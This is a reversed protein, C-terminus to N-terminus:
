RLHVHMDILGPAVVLGTADLREVGAGGAGRTGGGGGQSGGGEGRAIVEAVRGDEILLDYPGDLGQSPDILRGGAILLRPRDAPAEPTGPAGPTRQAGSTGQAGHGAPRAAM